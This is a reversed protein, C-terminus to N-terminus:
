RGQKLQRLLKMVRLQAVANALQLTAEDYNFSEPPNLISQEAERKAALAAAEDLEEGRIVIDALINVTYPQVELVGGSLYLVQEVGDCSVLRVLGPKICALLASHGPYIGLEGESGSVQLFAVEGSFINSEASVLELRLSNKDAM